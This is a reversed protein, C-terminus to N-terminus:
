SYHLGLQKPRTKRILESAERPGFKRAISFCRRAQDELQAPPEKNLKAPIAHKEPCALQLMLRPTSCFRPGQALPLALVLLVSDRTASHHSAM